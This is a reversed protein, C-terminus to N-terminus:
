SIITQQERFRMKKKYSRLLKDIMNHKKTRTKTM